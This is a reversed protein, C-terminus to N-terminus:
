QSNYDDKYYQRCQKFTSFWKKRVDFFKLIPTTTLLLKIREFSCDQEHSWSRSVEKRLLSRLLSTIESLNPVFQGLYNVMCLPRQLEQKEQSKPYDNIARVKESDPKLGSSVVNGLYGVESARYQFKSKNFKM